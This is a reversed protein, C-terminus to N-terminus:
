QLRPWPMRKWLTSGVEVQVRQVPITVLPKNEPKGTDAFCFIAMLFSVHAQFGPRRPWCAPICRVAAPDEAEPPLIRAFQM